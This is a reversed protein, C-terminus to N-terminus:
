ARGTVTEAGLVLLDVRELPVLEVDEPPGKVDLWWGSLNPHRSGKASIGLARELAIVVGGHAVVVAVEAGRGALRRVAGVSRRYFREGAEGGPVTGLQGARRAQFEEPWRVSIEENTLGNWQGLNQERLDPDIVVPKEYELEFAILEATVRARALDSAAMIDPVVDAAALAQGALRAQDVGLESLPADSWGQWRGAANWISQAHRIILLRGVRSM